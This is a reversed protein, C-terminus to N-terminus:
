PKRKWAVIRFKSGATATIVFVETMLFEESGSPRLPTSILATEGAGVEIGSDSTVTEDGVFIKGTNASDACITISVVPYLFTSVPTAVNSSVLTVPTLTQLKVM